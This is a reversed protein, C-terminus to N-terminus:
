RTSIHNLFSDGINMLRSESFSCLLSSFAEFAENAGDSLSSLKASDYSFEM